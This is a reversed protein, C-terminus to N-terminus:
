SGKRQRRLPPKNTKWISSSHGECGYVVGNLEVEVDNFLVRCDEDDYQNMYTVM